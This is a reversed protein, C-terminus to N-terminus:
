GIVRIRVDGQKAIPRRAQFWRGIIVGIFACSLGSLTGMLGYAEGAAQGSLHASLVGSWAFSLGAIAGAIGFVVGLTHGVPVQTLSAERSCLDAPTIEFASAIAMTTEFSGVGEAEVRQVTRLSVGAVSALHEQSWSREERLKRVRGSDIKMEADM